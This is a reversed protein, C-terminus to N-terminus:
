AAKIMKSFIRETVNMIAYPMWLEEVAITPACMPAPRISVALDYKLDMKDKLEIISAMSNVKSQVKLLSIKLKKVGFSSMNFTPRLAIMKVM